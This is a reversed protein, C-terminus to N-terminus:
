ALFPYRSCCQHLVSLSLRGLQRALLKYAAHRVSPAAESDAHRVADTLWLPLEMTSGLLPAISSFYRLHGHFLSFDYSRGYERVVMALAQCDARAMTALVSAAEVGAAFWSWEVSFSSPSRQHCSQKRWEACLSLFSPPVCYM